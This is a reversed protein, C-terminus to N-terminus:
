LKIGLATVFKNGRTGVVPFSLEETLQVGPGLGSTFPTATVVDSYENDVTERRVCTKVYIVDGGAAISQVRNTDRWEACRIVKDSSFKITTEDGSKVLKAIVAEHASQTGEVEARISSHPNEIKNIMDLSRDTFAPKFPDQYLKAVTLTRPGRRLYRQFDYTSYRYETQMAAAYITNGSKHTLALCAGWAATAIFASTTTPTLNVYFYNPDVPIDQERWKTARVVKEMAPRTRALCDGALGNKNERVLDQLKALDALQEAHAAAFAKWEEGATKGMAVIQAVGPDGKAADTVAAGIAKAAALKARADTVFRKSAGTRLGEAQLETALGEADFAEVDAACAAWLASSTADKADHKFCVQLVGLRGAQSLRDGLEDAIAFAVYPDPTSAGTQAIAHYQQLPSWTGRKAALKEFDDLQKGGSAPAGSREPPTASPPTASAQQQAPPSEAAAPEAESAPTTEASSSSSSSGGLPKGNVQILGCGTVASVVLYAGLRM